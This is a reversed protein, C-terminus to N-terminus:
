KAAEAKGAPRAGQSAAPALDKGDLKVIFVGALGQQMMMMLRTQGETIIEEGDKLGIYSVKPEPAKQLKGEAPKGAADGMEATNLNEGVTELPAILWDRNEMQRVVKVPRREAVKGGPKGEPSDLTNVVFVYQGAADQMLAGEPIVISKDLKLGEVTVRVFQGPVLRGERNEVIGRVGYTGTFSDLTPSTFDVTGLKDYESGDGFKIRVKPADIKDGRANMAAMLQRIARADSDTYSFNVYIPDSQTITTLLTTSANVLTGEPVAGLSTVGSIPATVKTYDLNLKATRLAARSADRRAVAADRQAASAVKQQLLKEIRTANRNAEDYDAQARAVVAEYDAPDIEFLVDGQKVASGEVFNRKLLIGSVRARIQTDLFAAIRGAYEYTVPIEQRHVTVASVPTPPPPTQVNGGCAALAFAFAGLVFGTSLKNFNKM